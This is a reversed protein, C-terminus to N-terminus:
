KPSITIKWSGNKGMKHWGCPSFRTSEPSYYWCFTNMVYEKGALNKYRGTGSIILLGRGNTIANWSEKSVVVKTMEPEFSTEGGAALFSTEFVGSSDKFFDPVSAIRLNVRLIIDNAPTTGVNHITVLPSLYVDPGLNPMTALKVVIIPREGIDFAQRAITASEEAAKASIQSANAQKEAASVSKRTETLSENLTNTQARISNAQDQMASLQGQIINSQDQMTRLQGKTIEAQERMMRYQFIAVGAYFLTGLAMLGSAGALLKNPLSTQKWRQSLKM